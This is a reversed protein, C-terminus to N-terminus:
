PHNNQKVYQEATLDEGQRIAPEEDVADPGQNPEPEPSSAGSEWYLLDIQEAVHQTM